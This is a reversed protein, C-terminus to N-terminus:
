NQPGAHVEANDKAKDMVREAGKLLRNVEEEALQYM